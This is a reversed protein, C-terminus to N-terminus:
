NLTLMRIFDSYIFDEIADLQGANLSVQEKRGQQMKAIQIPTLAFMREYRLHCNEGQIQINITLPETPTLESHDWFRVPLFLIKSQQAFEFVLIPISCFIDLRFNMRAFSDRTIDDDLFQVVLGTSHEILNSEDITKM